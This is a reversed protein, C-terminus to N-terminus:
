LVLFVTFSFKDKRIPLIHAKPLVVQTVPLTSQTLILVSQHQDILAHPTVVIQQFSLDNVLLLTSSLYAPVSPLEITSFPMAASHVCPTTCGKLSKKLFVSNFPLTSELDARYSQTTEEVGISLGHFIQLVQCGDDLVFVFIDVLTCDTDSTTTYDTFLPTVTECIAIYRFTPETVVSLTTQLATEEVLPPVPVLRVISLNIIPRLM